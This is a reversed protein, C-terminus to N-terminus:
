PPVNGPEKKKRDREASVQAIMQAIEALNGSIENLDTKNGCVCPSRYAIFGAASFDDESVLIGFKREIVPEIIDDLPNNLREKVDIELGALYQDLETEV